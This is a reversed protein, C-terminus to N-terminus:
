PLTETWADLIERTAILIKDTVHIIDIGLVPCDVLPEPCLYDHILEDLHVALDHDFRLSIPKM